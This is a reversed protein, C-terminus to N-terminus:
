EAKQTEPGSTILRAGRSFFVYAWMWELMVMVRSRFGILFFVHVGAWLAWAIFGTFPIRKSGLLPLWAVARSRGITALTGKDFYSFAPRPRSPTTGRCETNIIDAVFRGMQVAAPCVGPVPTGDPNNVKALDGVVFINPHNPISLDPNVIVRGASDTPVHLTAAIPSGRVGAAWIINHAHIREDGICIHPSEGGQVDTVRTNLMVEVGMSALDQRARESLHVPFGSPLVRDQGEILIVRAQSTDIHRFDRRIVTRAIEAIAGATEVGTPGAGIIIFTMLARRRAEDTEREAAEFALLFRRRIELADDITKLGPAVASWADHGFYSHTAGTALILIDFSVPGQDTSLTRSAADISNVQALIVETNVSKSLISRIPAAIHAPSLGATAVQYLMPQFLHHNRRDIVTIRVPAHRLRKAAELGAFGAGIIVVHTMRFPILSLHHRATLPKSNPMGDCIGM